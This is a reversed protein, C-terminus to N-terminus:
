RSRSLPIRLSTLKAYAESVRGLSVPVPVPVPVPVRFPFPNGKLVTLKAYVGEGEEETSRTLPTPDIGPQNELESAM